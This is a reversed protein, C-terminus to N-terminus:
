LGGPFMSPRKSSFTDGASPVMEGVGLGTRGDGLGLREGRGLTEGLGLGDGLGPSSEGSSGIEGAGGSGLGGEGRGTPKQFGWNM